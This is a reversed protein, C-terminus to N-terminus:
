FKAFVINPIEKKRRIKLIKRYKQTDRGGRLPWGM